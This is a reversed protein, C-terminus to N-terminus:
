SFNSEKKGRCTEGTVESWFIEKKEFDGRDTM